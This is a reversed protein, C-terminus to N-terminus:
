ISYLLLCNVFYASFSITLWRLAKFEALLDADRGMAARLLDPTKFRLKFINAYTRACYHDMRGEIVYYFEGKTNKVKRPPYAWYVLELAELPDMAENDKIPCLICKRGDRVAQRLQDVSMCCLKEFESKSSTTGAEKASVARRSTSLAPVDALAPKSLLGSM